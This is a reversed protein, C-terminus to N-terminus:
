EAAVLWLSLASCSCGAVEKLLAALAFGHRKGMSNGVVAAARGTGRSIKLALSLAVRTQIKLSNPMDALLAGLRGVRM